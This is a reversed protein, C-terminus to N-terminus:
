NDIVYNLQEKGQYNNCSSKFPPVFARPACSSMGLQILFRDTKLFDMELAAQGCTSKGLISKAM